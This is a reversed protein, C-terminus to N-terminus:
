INIPLDKKITITDTDGGTIRDAGGLGIDIETRLEPNEEQFFLKLIYENKKFDCSENLDDFHELFSQTDEYIDRTRGAYANIYHGWALVFYGCVEGLLSQINKNSYPLYQGVFDKVEEPPAVGYSDLYMPRIKGNKSKQVQLGVWHTGEAREGDLDLDYDLNVVYLKNYELPKDKLETKFCIRALPVKMKPAIQRIDADTLM